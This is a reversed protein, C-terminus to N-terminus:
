EEKTNAVVKLALNMADRFKKKAKEYEDTTIVSGGWRISACCLDIMEKELDPLYRYDIDSM